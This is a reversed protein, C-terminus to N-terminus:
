NFPKLSYEKVKAGGTTTIWRDHIIVGVQNRLESIRANLSVIGMQVAEWRHITKGAALHDYIIKNCKSLKERNVFSRSSFNLEAQVFKM